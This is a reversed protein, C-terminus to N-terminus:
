SLRSGARIMAVAKDLRAVRTKETKAGTIWVVYEKRHTFAMQAFRGALGATELAAALDSPVAVTREEDDREVVVDVEDGIDVGADARVAKTLGVCFTGDGVPMTSGRYGVGNFTVRVPFRARTGFVTAAEAPLSVLAGGQRGGQVM